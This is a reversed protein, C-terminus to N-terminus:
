YCCYDNRPNNKFVEAFFGGLCLNQQWIFAVKFNVIDFATMLRPLRCNLVATAFAAFKLMGFMNSM